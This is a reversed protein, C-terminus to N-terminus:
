KMSINLSQEAGVTLTIGTRAQTSFGPATVTVDYTGPLLNPATYFGASDATVDRIVGTAVNKISLPANPIVAGSADTVTGSLSAGAVQAYVPLPILMGLALAAFALLSVAMKKRDLQHVVTQGWASSVQFAM